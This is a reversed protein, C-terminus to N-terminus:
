MSGGITLPKNQGILGMWTGGYLGEILPKLSNKLQHVMSTRPIPCMRLRTAVGGQGKARARGDPEESTYRKWYSHTNKLKHTM